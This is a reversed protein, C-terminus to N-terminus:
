TLPILFVHKKRRESLMYKLNTLTTAYILAGSRKKTLYYKMTEVYWMKNMWRNFHANQNNEGKLKQLDNKIFM